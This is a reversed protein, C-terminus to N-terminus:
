IVCPESFALTMTDTDMTATLGIPVASNMAGHGVPMGTVVPIDLDGAAELLLEKISAMDGCDAFEGAIVAGVEDLLGSLKLHTLMRDIRYPSEGREEMFLLAGKLSPLYATGILRSILSLNGGLLAGQAQGARLVEGRDLGVRLRGAASVLDLFSMVNQTKGEFSDKLMSGHFTILGTRNYIAMLLATIDSYGVFPKPNDRIVDYDVKDLLRLTGYGGRACIIAGVDHDKFMAHLDRLRVDDSGAMYDRRKYLHKALSVGYGQSTLFDIGPQLETQSV